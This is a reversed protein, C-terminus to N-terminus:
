TVSEYIASMQSAVHPWSFREAQRRAGKAMNSRTGPDSMLEMIAEVMDDISGPRTLIAAQGNGVYDRVGGVDTAVVPLGCALAELISNNATSEEMPQILVTADRYLEILAPEEVRQELTVNGHGALPLGADPSTVLVFRVEPAVRGMKEIVGGLTVFDRRHKGVFLVSGTVSGPHETSDRPTFVDTDVGHPVYHVRGAGCLSEFYPVQNTGVAVIADARAIHRTYSLDQALIAPPLHYSVVLPHRRVKRMAGLYRYTDDGYLVHYVTKPIRVLMERAASWESYFSPLHYGRV